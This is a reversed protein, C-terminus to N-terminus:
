GGDGDGAECAGNDDPVVDQRLVVRALLSRGYMVACALCIDLTEPSRVKHIGFDFRENRGILGSLKESYSAALQKGKRAASDCAGVRKSSAGLTVDPNEPEGFECRCYSEM